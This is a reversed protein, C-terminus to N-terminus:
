ACGAWTHEDLSLPGRLGALGSSVAPNLPLLGSEPACRNTSLGHCYPPSAASAIALSTPSPYRLLSSLPFGIGHACNLARTLLICM